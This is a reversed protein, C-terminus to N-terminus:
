RAGVSSAASMANSSSFACHPSRYRSATFVQSRFQSLILVINRDGYSEILEVRAKLISDTYRKTIREQFYRINQPRIGVVVKRGTFSKLRAQANRTLALDVDSSRLMTNGGTDSIELDLFNM